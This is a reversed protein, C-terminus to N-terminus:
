GLLFEYERVIKGGEFEFIDVSREGQGNVLYTVIRNGDASVDMRKCTFQITTDAYAAKIVSLYEEVGCIVRVEDGHLEWVVEPHLFSRYRAWDRANEAEFFQSLAEANNM